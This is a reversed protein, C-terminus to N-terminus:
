FFLGALEIILLSAFTWGTTVGFVNDIFIRTLMETGRAM